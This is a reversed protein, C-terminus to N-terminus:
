TSEFGGEHLVEVESESPILVIENADHFYVECETAETINSISKGMRGKYSIRSGHLVESIKKTNKM